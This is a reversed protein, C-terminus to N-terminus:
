KYRPDKECTGVIVRNGEPNIRIEIDGDERVECGYVVGYVRDYCRILEPEADDRMMCGIVLCLVGCIVVMVGLLFNYKKNKM